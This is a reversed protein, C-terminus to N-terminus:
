QTPGPSPPKPRIKIPQSLRTPSIVDDRPKAPSNGESGSALPPRCNVILRSVPCVFTRVDLSALLAAFLWRALLGFPFSGWNEVM